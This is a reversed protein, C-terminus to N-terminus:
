LLNELVTKIKSVTQKIEEDTHKYSLFAVEYQSPPFYIGKKALERHMKQYKEFDSEQVDSYNLVEDKQTLFLSFMSSTGQITTDLEKTEEKLMKRIKEGNKNAKPIVNQKEQVELTALGGAVTLPNGSFTGAQYVEGQPSLESMIKEKGGFIGIPFGGGAIKGLTTIDAEVDFIEQAGGRAVRFGTIVEDLILLSNNEETIDRLFKIFNNKPPICGTNGFIPESILAAINEGEKKFVEKIAEKDNWPVVITHKALDAPVGPSDPAGHTSAGSGAKVLVSDHSGHYGGDFKIIKDKDTYGRALRIASMTAETGTNVIRLKDISSFQNTIKKALKGEAETATGLAWGKELAEKAKEKVEPHTHGLIQPGFALSYDLYENGDKDYIKSGKAKKMFIPFPDYARAPSNVGGVLYKKSWEFLDKSNEFSM